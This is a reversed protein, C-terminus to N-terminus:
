MNRKINKCSDSPRWYRLIFKHISSCNHASWYLLNSMHRTDVTTM